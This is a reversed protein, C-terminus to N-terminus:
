NKGLVNRITWVVFGLLLLDQVGPSINLAGDAYRFLVYWDEM